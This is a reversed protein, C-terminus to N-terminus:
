ARLNEISFDIRFDLSETIRVGSFSPTFVGQLITFQDIDEGDGLETEILLYRGCLIGPVFTLNTRHPACFEPKPIRISTEPDLKEINSRFNQCTSQLANICANVRPVKKKGRRYKPRFVTQTKMSVAQVGRGVNKKLDESSHYVTLQGWM